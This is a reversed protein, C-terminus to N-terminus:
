DTVKVTIPAFGSYRVKVEDVDDPLQEYLVHQVKPAQSIHLQGSCICTKEIDSRFLRNVTLPQLATQSGKTALTPYQSWDWGALEVSASEPSTVQFTLDTLGDTDKVAFVDFTVGDKNTASGVPKPPTYADFVAKSQDTGPADKGSAEDKDSSKDNDDQSSQSSAPPDQSDDSCATLASITLLAAAATATLRTARTITHTM